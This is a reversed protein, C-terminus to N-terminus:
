GYGEKIFLKAVNTKGEDHIHIKVPLPFSSCERTMEVNAMKDVFRMHASELFETQYEGDVPVVNDLKCRIAQIPLELAEPPIDRHAEGVGSITKEEGYDVFLVTIDGDERLSVVRARFWGTVQFLDIPPLKNRRACTPPNEFGRGSFEVM